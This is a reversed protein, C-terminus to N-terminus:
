QNVGSVADESAKAMSSDIAEDADVLDQDAADVTTALQERRRQAAMAISVLSRAEFAEATKVPVRDSRQYNADNSLRVLRQIEADDLKGTPANEQIAPDLEEHFREEHANSSSM